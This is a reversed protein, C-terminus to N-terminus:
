EGEALEATHVWEGAAIARRAHGIPEGYKTVPAGAPIPVLAIKHNRPVDTRAVLGDGAGAIPDGAKLEVIAVAVNDAPHILIVNNKM